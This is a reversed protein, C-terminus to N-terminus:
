KLIKILEQSLLANIDRLDKQLTVASITMNLAPLYMVDTGWFGGHYYAIYGHFDIKRLGLCYNNPEKLPIDTHMLELVKEDKIIKGEFLYQFFLAVDKTTAAIGGGGYLDFSNDIDYSDWNQKEWYQHVLPKINNPTKELTHFWTSSLGSKEYGILERIAIYFPKKTQKEIIETLLLFNIDAYSFITGAIGLPDGVKVALAIQEDRSWRHKKNKDIFDIYDDDVYDQIGSTHSLLHKITIAELDYGDKRLARKSKRSILSKIPQDLVLKKQEILRLIAVAVYSKTISAILAPQDKSLKEKGNKEAFGAASTWSINKDPAEVHIIIGVAQPNAQYFSDLQHQFQDTLSQAQISGSLYCYALLLILKKIKM